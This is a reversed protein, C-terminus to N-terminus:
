KGANDGAVYGTSWAAQLNFGGTFGDIDIVEGAFFLGHLLKSEMTSPNIEKVAIGGATVIAERLPRPGKIQLSLGSIVNVLQRREERTIQHVSKEASIGSQKIIIPILSKPLLEDLANKLQKRLYKNLDRQIRLDLQEESLAPKLNIKIQINAVSEIQSVIQRSLSLIIPGSVGFHTFLMEGFDDGMKRGNAIVTVQVNKLALGQLEKVWDEQTALPVLAPKATIITHGVRRAIEYGDGTSGTGPYSAGGTAIIVNSGLYTQGDATKVGAVQGNNVIIEAATKNYIIKVQNKKLISELTSLVDVAKDSEPFVRGGREIKTKLGARSLFNIMDINTFSYFPGYLFQGNGPMNEIFTEIEASNTINCRGKGTIALKKGLQHNKELIIVTLKREAAKIAAMMGAPGGGVVIVNSDM